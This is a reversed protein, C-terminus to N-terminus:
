IKWFMITGADNWEAYWGHKELFKGIENHVGFVYNKEQYDEAYYDFLRMGNKAELGDETSRNWIGGESGNFSETTDLNMEPYKKELLEILKERSTAM